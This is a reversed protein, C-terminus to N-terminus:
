EKADVTKAIAWNLGEEIPTWWDAGEPWLKPNWETFGHEANKGIGVRTEVDHKKLAEVVDYSHQVPILSDGEAALMFTPPFWPGFFNLFNAAAPYPPNGWLFSNHCNYKVDSNVWICRPHDDPLPMSNTKFSCSVRGVFLKQVAKWGEPNDKALNEELASTPNDQYGDKLCAPYAPVVARPQVIKAELHKKLNNYNHVDIPLCLTSTGGASGGAAFARKVDLNPASENSEKALVDNLKTQYFIYADLVDERCASQKVCHDFGPYFTM